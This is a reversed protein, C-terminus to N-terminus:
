SLALVWQDPSGAARKGKPQEGGGMARKKEGKGGKKKGRRRKRKWLLIGGRKGVDNHYGLEKTARIEKSELYGSVGLSATEEFSQKKLRSVGM